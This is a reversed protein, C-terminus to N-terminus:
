GTNAIIKFIFTEAILPLPIIGKRKGRKKIDNKLVNKYLFLFVNFMSLKDM